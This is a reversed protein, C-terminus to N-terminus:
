AHLHTEQTHAHTSMCTETTAGEHKEPEMKLVRTVFTHIAYVAPTLLVAVVLKICYERGIKACIWLWRDTVEMRGLFSDPAAGATWGWFIGNFAATDVVQSFATSGTARLWLHKSETLAKWFQFVYIDLFQGALYAIMSAVFLVAGGGFIKEVEEQTFYTSEDAPLTTTLQLTVWGLCGMAFGVMTLFKAGERGYFDNVVDTLLFTIPYCIISVSMPGLPTVITKGAIVDSLMLCSVFLATLCVYLKHSTTVTDFANTHTHAHQQAALQHSPDTHTQSPHTLAGTDSLGKHTISLRRTAKTSCTSPTENGTLETEVGGRRTGGRTSRGVTTPVRGYGKRPSGFPNRSHSGSSSTSEADSTYPDVHISAM